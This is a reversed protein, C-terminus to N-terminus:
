AHVIKSAAEDRQRQEERREKANNLFGDTINKVLDFENWIFTSGVNATKADEALITEPVDVYDEEEQALVGFAFLLSISFLISKLINM